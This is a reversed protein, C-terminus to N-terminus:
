HTQDPPLVNAPKFNVEVQTGKPQKTWVLEPGFKIAIRVPDYMWGSVPDRDIVQTGFSVRISDEIPKRSLLLYATLKETIDKCRFAEEQIMRLYNRVVKADGGEHADLLPGLNRNRLKLWALLMSPGSILLLVAVVGLPMYIGLSVFRNVIGRLSIVPKPIVPENWEAM